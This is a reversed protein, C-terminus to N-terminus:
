QAVRSIECHRVEGLPISIHVEIKARRRALQESVPTAVPPLIKRKPTSPQIRIKPVPLNSSVVKPSNNNGDMELFENVDQNTENETSEILFTGDLNSSFDFQNEM